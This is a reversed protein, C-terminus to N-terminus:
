KYVHNMKEKILEHNQKLPSSININYKSFIINFYYAPQNKIIEYNGNKINKVIM